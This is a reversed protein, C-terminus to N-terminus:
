KLIKTASAEVRKCCDLLEATQQRLKRYDDLSMESLALSDAAQQKLSKHEELLIEITNFRELCDACERRRRVQTDYPRSDVTRVQYSGCSPCRM